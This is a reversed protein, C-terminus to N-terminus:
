GMLVTRHSCALLARVSLEGGVCVCVYVHVRTGGVCGHADRVAISIQVRSHIWVLAHVWVWVIVCV